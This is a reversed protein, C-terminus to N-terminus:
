SKLLLEKHTGQIGKGIRVKVSEEMGGSDKEADVILFGMVPLVNELNMAVMIKVAYLVMLIVHVSNYVIQLM